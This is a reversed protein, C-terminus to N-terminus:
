FLDPSMIPLPHPRMYVHANTMRQIGWMYQYDADWTDTLWAGYYGSLRDGLGHGHAFDIPITQGPTPGRGRTDTYMVRTFYFEPVPDGQKPGDSFGPVVLSILALIGVLMATRKVM